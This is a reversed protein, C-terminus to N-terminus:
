SRKSKPKQTKKVQRKKGGTSSKKARAPKKRVPKSHYKIVPELLSEVVPEISQHKLILNRLPAGLSPDYQRLQNTLQEVTYQFKFTRGSCNRQRDILYSAPTLFGDGGRYDYVIVNRECAMAEYCGRGLSVVLDAKNIFDAVNLKWGTGGIHLFGVGLLSCAAHVTNIVGPVHNTIMLVNRLKSHIERISFFIDPNIGNYIIDSDFGALKNAHHVEPSVSVYRHFGPIALAIPLIGNSIMTKYGGAARAFVGMQRHMSFVADFKMSKLDSTPDLFVCYAAFADIYNSHKLTIVFVQHGLRYLEAVIALMFTESGGPQQLGRHLCLIRM